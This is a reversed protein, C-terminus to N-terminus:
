NIILRKVQGATVGDLQHTIADIHWNPQYEDGPSVTCFSKWVFKSFDKRLVAALVPTM